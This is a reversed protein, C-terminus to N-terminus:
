GNGAIWPGSKVLDLFGWVARAIIRRARCRESASKVETKM